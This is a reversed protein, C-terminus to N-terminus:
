KFYFLILLVLIFKKSLPYNKLAAALKEREKVIKEKHKVALKLGKPQLAKIAVNTSATPLPYPEMVARLLTILEPFAICAGIRLGAMAYAKSLTRLIVLNPYRKAFQLM